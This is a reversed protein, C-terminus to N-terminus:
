DDFLVYNKEYISAPNNTIIFLYVGAYEQVNIKFGAFTANKAKHLFEIFESDNLPIHGNKVARASWHNENPPILEDHYDATYPGKMAVLYNQNKTWNKIVVEKLWFPLTKELEKYRSIKEMSNLHNSEELMKPDCIHEMIKTNVESTTPFHIEQATTQLCDKCVHGIYGFVDDPNIPSLHPQIFSSGVGQVNNPQWFGTSM